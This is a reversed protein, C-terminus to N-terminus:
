AALLAPILYVSSDRTAYGISVFSYACFIWALRWFAPREEASMWVAGAATLALGPLGLQARLFDFWAALREALSAPPLSFLLGQYPQATVLWKFGQWTQPNGWNVPPDQRALLPLYLYVLSGAALLALQGAIRGPSLGRRRAAGLCILVVPLLALLTLHNGLGLGFAFALGLAAAKKQNSDVTQSLLRLWILALACFLAQLGHVEVIAAQALFLRSTGWALGASLGIAISKGRSAGKPTAWAAFLGAALAAPLSSLLAGRWYPTGLPVSQIVRGLLLYTPYGSPHPIGRSVVAALLDGGDIGHNAATLRNPTLSIAVRFTVGAM